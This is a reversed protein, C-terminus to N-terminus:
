EAPLHATTFPERRARLDAYTTVILPTLVVGCILSAVGSLVTGMVSDVVVAGTSVAATPDAFTSGYAVLTVATTVAAFPLLIGFGLGVLTAIRAVAAGFDNHFLSFCRSIANGSEFLVVVPLLVFVAGVYFAPLICAFLAAVIILGALLSWGILAPVRPLIARVARGAHANGGSAVTVAVRATALTGISYILMSLVLAVLLAGFAVLVIGLAEDASDRSALDAFAQAPVLLALTLATTVAQVVALPRWGRRVIAFGRRWWGALDASVLPDAPDFRWAGSPVAAGPYFPLNPSLHAHPQVPQNDPQPGPQGPPPPQSM